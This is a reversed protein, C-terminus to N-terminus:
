HGSSWNNIDDSGTTVSREDQGNPGDSSLDFTAPNRNVSGPAQYRFPKGWPDVFQKSANLFNTESLYPRKEGSPRGTNVPKYFLRDSLISENGPPYKGYDLKYEELGSKIIQIRALCRGVDAKRGAISSAGIVLAALLMIITIVALLEVLTFGSAQFRPPPMRRVAMSQGNVVTKM